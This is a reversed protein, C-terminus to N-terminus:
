KEIMAEQLKADLAADTISAEIKEVPKGATYELWLKAAATDGKRGRDYLSRAMAQMQQPTTCGLIAKRLTEAQAGTKKLRGGPNGRAFPRGRPKKKAASRLAPASVKKAM